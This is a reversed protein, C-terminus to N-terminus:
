GVREATLKIRLTVEPHVKVLLLRPPDIKFDRIDFEQEGELLVSTADPASLRIEGSVSKTVGRVTVDGTVAFRGADLPRIERAEAVISPYRRTEM